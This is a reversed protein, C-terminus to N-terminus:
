WSQAQIVMGPGTRSVAPQQDAAGRAGALQGEVAALCRLLDRQGGQHIDGPAPPCCFLVELGALPQGAGALGLDAAPGGPAPPGGQDHEGAGEEGDGGSGLVCAARGRGALGRQGSVLDGVQEGGQGAGGAAGPVPHAPGAPSSAVLVAGPFAM